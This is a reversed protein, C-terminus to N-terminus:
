AGEQLQALHANIEAAIQESARAFEGTVQEMRAQRTGIEGELRLHEDALATRKTQLAGIQKDTEAVEREIEALRRQSPEINQRKEEQLEEEFARKQTGLEQLHLSVHRRIDEVGLGNAALVGLAAKLLKKQDPISDRLSDMTRLLKSYGSERLVVRERLQKTLETDIGAPAINPEPWPQSPQIGPLAATPAPAKEPEREFIHDLLSM